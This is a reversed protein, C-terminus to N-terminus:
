QARNEVKYKPVFPVGYFTSYGASLAQVAPNCLAFDLHVHVNGASSVRYCRDLVCFTTPELGVWPLENKRQFIVAKPSTANHQTKNSQRLGTTNQQSAKRLMENTSNDHVHICMYM